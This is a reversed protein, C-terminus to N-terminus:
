VFCVFDASSYRLSQRNLSTDDLILKKMMVNSCCKKVTYCGKIL